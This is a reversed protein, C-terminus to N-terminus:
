QVVTWCVVIGVSHVALLLENLWCAGPNSKSEFYGKDCQKTLEIHLTYGVEVNFLFDDSCAIACHATMM